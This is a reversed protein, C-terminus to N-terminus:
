DNDDDEGEIVTNDQSAPVPEKAAELMRILIDVGESNMTLTSGGYRPDGINMTVRNDETRGVQYAPMARQREDEKKKAESLADSVKTDPIEPLSYNKPDTGFLRDLISM